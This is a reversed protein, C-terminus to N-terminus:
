SPKGNKLALRLLLNGAVERRYDASARIDDIPKVVARAIQGAKELVQNSLRCGKLMAEIEPSAVVTPAVSGWALRAEEVVGDDSTKLLAGFSVIAIALAKRAGVKEYHHFNFRPSKRIFIATLVEGPALLTEGPGKIFDMISMRRSSEKIRLEIEARLLYLPPLTDGAPSATVINGGITGMNRIPPSGLVKLAEMLIPFHNMIVPSELLRTFTTCPGIFIEEGRDEVGKLEEIRELCIMQHPRILGNRMRVLLDTGGAYLLSRPEDRLIQWLENLTHPLSGNRM